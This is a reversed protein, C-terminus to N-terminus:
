AESAINKIIVRENVAYFNKAILHQILGDYKKGRDLLLKVWQTNSCLSHFKELTTSEHLILDRQKTRM